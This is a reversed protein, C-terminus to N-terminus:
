SSLQDDIFFLLLLDGRVISEMEGSLQAMVWGVTSARLM